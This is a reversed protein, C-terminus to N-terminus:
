GSSAASGPFSAFIILAIIYSVLIGVTIMWQQLMTLSRAPELRTLVNSPNEYTDPQTM